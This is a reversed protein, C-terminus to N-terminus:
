RVEQGPSRRTTRTSSVLLLQIEKGGMKREKEKEKIERKEIKERGERIRGWSSM